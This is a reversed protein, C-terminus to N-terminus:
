NEQVLNYMRDTLKQAITEWQLVSTRSVAYNMQEEFVKM